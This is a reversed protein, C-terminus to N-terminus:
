YSACCFVLSPCYDLEESTHVMKGTHLEAFWSPDTLESLPLVKAVNPTIARLEHFPLLFKPGEYQDLDIRPIDLADKFLTEVKHPPPMKDFHFHGIIQLSETDIQSPSISLTQVETILYFADFENANNEGPFNIAPQGITLRIFSNYKTLHEM